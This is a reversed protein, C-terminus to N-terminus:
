KSFKSPQTRMNNKFLTNFQKLDNFGVQHSLELVSEKNLHLRLFAEMLRKKNRYAIPTIHYEKKFYKILWEKSINLEKAFANLDINSLFTEDIKNKLKEAYLNTSKRELIIDPKKELIIKRISEQSLFLNEKELSYIQMNKPFESPYPLISSYAFWTIQPVLFKWEILSHRPIIMGHKGSVILEQGEFNIQIGPAPIDAYVFSWFDGYCDIETKQLGYNQTRVFKLDTDSVQTFEHIYSESTVKTQKM